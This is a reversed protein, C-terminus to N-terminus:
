VVRTVVFATAHWAPVPQFTGFCLGLAMGVHHFIAAIGSDKAVAADSKSSFDTQQGGDKDAASTDILDSAAQARAMGESTSRARRTQGLWHRACWQVYSTHDLFSVRHFHLDQSTELFNRLAQATDEIHAATAHDSFHLRLDLIDATPLNDTREDSSLNTDPADQGDSRRETMPALWIDEEAPGFRSPYVVVEQQYLPFHEYRLLTQVLKTVTFGPRDTLQKLAWITASTFSRRGASATRQDAKCAAVYQFKRRHGRTAPCCLLGAHCCDFIVLVDSRAKALTSEVDTWDVSMDREEESCPFRGSLRLRGTSTREASGHGAYYVILLNGPGDEDLMFEAVHKTAQVQPHTQLHMREYRVSFRYLDHLM